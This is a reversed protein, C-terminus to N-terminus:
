QTCTLQRTCFEEAREDANREATFNRESYEGFQCNKEPLTGVLSERCIGRLLLGPLLFPCFLSSLCCDSFPTSVMQLRTQGIKSNWPSNLESPIVSTWWSRESWKFASSTRSPRWWSRKWSKTKRKWRNWLPRIWCLSCCPLLHYLPRLSLLDNKCRNEWTPAKKWCVRFWWRKKNSNWRRSAANIKWHSCIAKASSPSNALSVLYVTLKSISEMFFLLVLLSRAETLHAFSESKLKTNALQLEQNQKRLLLIEYMQNSDMGGTWSETPKSSVTELQELKTKLNTNAATLQSNTKELDM